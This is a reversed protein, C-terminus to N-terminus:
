GKAKKKSVGVSRGKRFSGRTRQGRVPLHISHRWGRYSKIKKLKDIDFRNRLNLKSVLLHINEGTDPDKRRNLMWKPIELKGFNLILDELKKQEQDSLEGLKKGEFGSIKAIANSAMVGIGKVRRIAINVPRLGDLNTEAIRMIQEKKDAM